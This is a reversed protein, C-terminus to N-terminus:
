EYGEGEKTVNRAGVDGTGGVERPDLKTQDAEIGLLDRHKVSPGGPLSEVSAPIGPYHKGPAAVSGERAQPERTAGALNEGPDSLGDFGEGYTMPVKYGPYEGGASGLTGGGSPALPENPNHVQSKGPTPGQANSRASHVFKGALAPDVGRVSTAPAIPDGDSALATQGKGPYQGVRSGGGKPSPVDRTPSPPTDRAVKGSQGGIVTSKRAM